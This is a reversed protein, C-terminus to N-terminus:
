DAKASVFSGTEMPTALNESQNALVRNGAEPRQEYGTWYKQYESEVGERFRLMENPPAFLAGHLLYQPMTFGPLGVWGYPSPSSFEIKKGNSEMVITWRGWSNVASATVRFTTRVAGIQELRDLARRSRDLAARVEALSPTEKKAHLLGNRATMIGSDNLDSAVAALSEVLRVQSEATLDLFPVLHNFPFQQLQTKAVFKPTTSAPRKWEEESGRLSALKKSLRTYGQVLQSLNPNDNLDDEARSKTGASVENLKSRTFEKGGLEFYVYSQESTHHDNLLAWTLFAISDHLFRELSVFYNSALERLREENLGLNSGATSAFSELNEHHRWYDERVDLRPQMPFGLKWLIAEVLSNDPQDLRVNLERGIHEANSRRALALTRVIVEPDSVRLFEELRGDTTEGPMDRLVWALEDLELASSTDFLSRCMTSLRLLPLDRGRGVVRVGLHSLQTRLRWAGSRQGSNVKAQRVEGNPVRIVKERVCANLLDVLQEDSETLLIQLLEARSLDKVSTKSVGSLGLSKAVAVLRGKSIDPGHALISKLEDTSFADGLLEPLTSVDNVSYTNFMGEAIDSMFGNWESPEEAVQDLVKNLARRHRNVAADFSTSLQVRHIQSCSHDACHQLPVVTTAHNTRYHSVRIIGYPGVLFHGAQFVGQPMDKLLRLTDDHRLYDREEPFLRAARDYLDRGFVFPYLLARSRIEQSMAKLLRDIDLAAVDVLPEVHVLGLLTLVNAEKAGVQEKTILQDRIKKGAETLAIASNLDDSVRYSKEIICDRLLSVLDVIDLYRRRWDPDAYKKALEARKMSKVTM